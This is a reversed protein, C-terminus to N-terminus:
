ERVEDASTAATNDTYNDEVTTGETTTLLSSKTSSSALDDGTTITKRYDDKVPVRIEHIKQDSAMPEDESGSKQDILPKDTSHRALRPQQHETNGFSRVTTVTTEDSSVTSTPNDTTTTKITPDTSNGNDTSQDDDVCNVIMYVSM